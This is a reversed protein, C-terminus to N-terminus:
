KFDTIVGRKDGQAEAWAIADYPVTFNYSDFNYLERATHARNYANDLLSIYFELEPQIGPRLAETPRERVWPPCRHRQHLFTSKNKVSRASSPGRRRNEACAAEM